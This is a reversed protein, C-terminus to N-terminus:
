KKSAIIQEVLLNIDNTTCDIAYGKKNLMNGIRTITPLDIALENLKETQAFLEVPSQDIVLHGKEMVLARTAYDRVSDMDHTVVIITKGSKHLQKIMELIDKKGQPDLGATPEDLILVEPELALIGAIAVRRKQGGSLEFPSMELFSEDLGVVKILEKAMQARKLPDVKFNKPGFEIDKQVTEEFLQVEPFQFVLGVKKRLGILENQKKASTIKTGFVDLTGSTPKILGNLHQILSSKGSGTQGIIAIYEGENIELTVNELARFEFPTKQGYICSVNDVIIKRNVSM